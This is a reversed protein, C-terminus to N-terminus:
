PRAKPGSPLAKMLQPLNKRAPTSLELVAAVKESSTIESYTNMEKWIVKAAMVRASTSPDTTSRIFNEATMTNPAIQSVM